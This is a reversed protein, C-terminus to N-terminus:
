AQCEAWLRSASQSGEWQLGAWRRSFWPHRPWQRSWPQLLDWAEWLRCPSSRWRLHVPSPRVGRAWRRQLSTKWRRTSVTPREVEVVALRTRIDRWKKESEAANRRGRRANKQRKATLRRSCSESTISRRTRPRWCRRPGRHRDPSLARHLASLSRTAARLSSEGQPLGNSRSRHPLQLSGDREPHRARTPCTNLSRSPSGRARRCQPHDLSVTGSNPSTTSFITRRLSISNTVSFQRPSSTLKRQGAGSFM